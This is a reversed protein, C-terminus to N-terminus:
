TSHLLLLLQQLQAPSAVFGLGCVFRFSASVCDVAVGVAVDASVCHCRMTGAATAFFAACAERLLYVNLM